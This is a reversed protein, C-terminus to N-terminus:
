HALLKIVRPHLQVLDASVALIQLVRVVVIFEAHQYTKM